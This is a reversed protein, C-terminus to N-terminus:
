LKALGKYGGNAIYHNINEPDINGCDQLTIRLQPKLSPLEFLDPIDKLSGDNRTGFALDPHPNDAVLYDDIIQSMIEPTVNKYLINPKGPKIIEILPEAYCLGNCGVPIVDAKIKTKALKKEIAKMVNDAGAAIGCTGMGVLIRINKSNQSAEWEAKAKDQIKEFDM